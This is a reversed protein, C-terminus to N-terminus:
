RETRIKRVKIQLKKMSDSVSFASRFRVSAAKRVFKGMWFM